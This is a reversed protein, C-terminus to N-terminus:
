VAGLNFMANYSAWNAATVETLLLRDSGSMFEQLYDRLDASTLDSRVAWQSGMVRHGGMGEIAAHVRTYDDRTAGVRLDYSILYLMPKYSSRLILKAFQSGM